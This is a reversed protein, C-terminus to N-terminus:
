YYYRLNIRVTTGPAVVRMDNSFPDREYSLFKSYSNDLANEVDAGVVYAGNNWTAGFDVTNWASSPTEGLAADVRKRANNYREEAHLKVNHFEPSTIRTSVELPYIETLSQGNSANEGYTYSVESVIYNGINARATLGAIFADINIFTRYRQMGAAAGTLYFYNHIYSAYAGLSFEPLNLSTRLSSRVPENLNPNGIWYPNGMPRKLAVYLAEGEPAVASIDVQTNVSISTGLLVARSISLGLQPFTRSRPASGYLPAYFSAVGENGIGYYSLGVRGTFNFGSVTGEKFADASLVDLEPIMNSSVTMAGNNMVMSNDANWHRYYAEVFSSVIGATLHKARTEMFMPSVRLGNNMTHNTYVVYLKYAGYAVSANYEDSSREDMQLYPFSVNGTFM